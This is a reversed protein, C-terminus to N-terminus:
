EVREVGTETVLFAGAPGSLSYPTGNVSVTLADPVGAMVWYRKASDFTQQGGASLTGAYLEAGDENDERVVLWCSGQAVSLVMTVNEGTTTPVGASTTTTEDPATSSTTTTQVALTVTTATTTLTSSPLNGGDITASEQGRGSGFWALLVVAAVAVIGAAAYGRQTRRTRKKKREASTKTRRQQAMETRLAGLEEKHQEYGSRYEALLIEPDLKLFVAYSRLFGKVVTADPLVEFDNEELAELYKSRIKTVSEVDAISLGRRIRAERLTNGIDPV